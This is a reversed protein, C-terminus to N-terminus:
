RRYPIWRYWARMGLVNAWADVLEWDHAPDEPIRDWLALLDRGLDGAGAAQYAVQYTTVNLLRDCFLAYASNMALLAAAVTLGEVRLSLAAANQQQMTAIGDAQLDRLAPYAGHLWQDVRMGIPLSRLTMLAWKAVVGAFQPLATQDADSIPQGASLLAEVEAQAAGTPAFDFRNNEANTFLRLLFGAQYAVLYDIPRDSPRYRLIHAPTGDRAIELTVLLPMDKDPLFLIDRRSCDRAM